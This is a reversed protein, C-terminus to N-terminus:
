RNFIWIDSKYPAFTRVGEDNCINLARIFSAYKAKDTFHIRVGNTTDSNGLMKRIAQQAFDLKIEDNKLNGKLNVILYTRAPPFKLAYPSADNPNYWCVELVHPRDFAKYKDLIFISLPFLLLLSLQGPRYSILNASIM